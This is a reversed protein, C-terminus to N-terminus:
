AAREKRRKVKEPAAAAVAPPPTPQRPPPQKEEVIDNGEEESGEDDGGLDNMTSAESSSLASLSPAGLVSEFKNDQIRMKAEHLKFQLFIGMQGIFISEIRVVAVVRARQGIVDRMRLYETDSSLITRVNETGDKNKHVVLKLNLLPSTNLMPRKKEDKKYDFVKISKLSSDEPSTFDKGLDERISFVHERCAQVISNMTKVFEKQEKTTKDEEREYMVLTMAFTGNPKKEKDFTRGEQIGFTFCEPTPMLFDGVKGDPNQVSIKIRKYEITTDGLKQEDPKSFVIRKTNFNTPSTLVTKPTKASM